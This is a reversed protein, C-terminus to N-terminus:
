NISKQMRKLYEPCADVTQLLAKLSHDTEEYWEAYLGGLLSFDDPTDLTFRLDKREELWVPLPLLRVSFTELHTYLYITVHERYLKEDTLAAARRLADLTTLEAFLGIHMPLARKPKQSRVCKLADACNMNNLKGNICILMLDMGKTRGNLLRGDYNTDGSLYIRKGEAELLYGCGTPDSHAAFVSTVRFPGFSLTADMPVLTVSAEPIGLRLFHEYSRQPGAYRCDPYAARILPIGEPDLHDMHDHTVLVLDPKLDSIALPFPHLRALGEKKFVCDSLYPDVALRYKGSELLFGGQGLWTIKM